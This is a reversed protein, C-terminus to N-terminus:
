YDPPLDNETIPWSHPSTPIQSYCVSCIRPWKHRLYETVTLWTM